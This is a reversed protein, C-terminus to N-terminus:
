KVEKNIENATNVAQSMKVYCDRCIYLDWASLVIVYGPAGNVNCEDCYVGSLEVNM